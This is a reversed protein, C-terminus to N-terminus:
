KTVQCISLCDVSENILLLMKCYLWSKKRPSPRMFHLLCPSEKCFKLLLMQKATKGSMAKNVKTWACYDAAETAGDQSAIRVMYLHNMTCKTHSYETICGPQETYISFQVTGPLCLVRNIVYTCCVSVCAQFCYLVLIWWWRCVLQGDMTDSDDGNSPSIRGRIFSGILYVMWTLQGTYSTCVGVKIRNAENGPRGQSWNKIM